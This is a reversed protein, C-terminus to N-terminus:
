SWEGRKHTLKVMGRTADEGVEMWGVRGGEWGRETWREGEWGGM